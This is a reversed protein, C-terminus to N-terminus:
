LPRTKQINLAHIVHLAFVHCSGRGKIDFRLRKQLIFFRPKLHKQTGINRIQIWNAPQSAYYFHSFFFALDHRKRKKQDFFTTLNKERKEQSCTASTACNVGMFRWTLNPLYSFSVFPIQKNTRSLSAVNHLYVHVHFKQKKFCTNRNCKWLRFIYSIWNQLPM